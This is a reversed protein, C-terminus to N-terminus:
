WAIAVRGRSAAPTGGAVEYPHEPPLLFSQSRTASFMTGHKDMADVCTTDSAIFEDDIRYRAMEM